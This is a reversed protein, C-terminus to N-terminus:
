TNVPQALCIDNWIQVVLEDKAQPTFDINLSSRNQKHIFHLGSKTISPEILCMHPYSRQTMFINNDDVLLWRRDYEFGRDTVLSSSVAIGGLSKVPYIFIQSVRLM